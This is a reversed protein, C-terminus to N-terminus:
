CLGGLIQENTEILLFIVLVFMLFAKRGSPFITSLNLYALPISVVLSIFELIIM